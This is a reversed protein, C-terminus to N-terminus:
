VKFPTTLFFLCFFWPFDAEDSRGWIPFASAPHIESPLQGASTALVLTLTAGQAAMSISLGPRERESERDRERETDRETERERDPLLAWQVGPKCGLGAAGNPTLVPCARCAPPWAGRRYARGVRQLFPVQFRDQSSLTLLLEGFGSLRILSGSRPRWGVLSIFHEEAGVQCGRMGPAEQGGSGWGWWSGRLLCDGPLLTGAEPM